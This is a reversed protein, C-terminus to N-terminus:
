NHSTLCGTFNSSTWLPFWDLWESSHSETFQFRLGVNNQLGLRKSNISNKQTTYKETMAAAADIEFGCRRVLAGREEGPLGGDRETPHNPQGGLETLLVRSM